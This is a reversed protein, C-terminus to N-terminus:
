QLRHAEFELKVMAAHKTLVRYGAVGLHQHEMRVAYVINRNLVTPAGAGYRAM